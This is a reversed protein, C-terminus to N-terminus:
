RAHGEAKEVAEIMAVAPSVSEIAPDLDYTRDGSRIPGFPRGDHRGVGERYLETSHRIAARL